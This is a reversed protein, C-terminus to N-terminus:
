KEFVDSQYVSNENLEIKFPVFDDHVEVSEIRPDYYKFNYYHDDNFYTNCLWDKFKNLEDLHQEALERKSYWASCKTYWREWESFDGNNYRFVARYITM